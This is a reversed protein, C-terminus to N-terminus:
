WIKEAFKRVDAALLQPQELAAFHGGKDMESWQQINYVKDAWVRPPCMIERPFQAYGTPVEVRTPIGGKPNGFVEYYLRMSSTISETFWYISIDTLLEDRSVANEIAGDCDTWAHFKETIWAALGTPSDNLAYGLTQPKSGQIKQYGTGHDQFEKARGLNMMEAPTVGKMPDEAPPRVALMNVHIGKVTEPYLVGLWGTIIAGWDGGQAMYSSYGLKEMLQNFVTAIQEADCGPQKAASSFGYGPLSPCIVDFSVSSSLGFSEPDTLMPIIKYFEWISGPWGHSMLLPIGKGNVAKQHIYHVNFDGIDTKYHDFKNLKEQQAYWDFDDKWYACLEKIYTLDTGYQWGEGVEDPWRTLELRKKLDDVQSQDVDIIFKDM